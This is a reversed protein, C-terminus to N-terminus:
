GEKRGKDGRFHDAISSGLDDAANGVDRFKTKVEEDHFRGAVAEASERASKGFERAREKLEPDKFMEGIANALAEFMEGLSDGPGKKGSDRQQPM